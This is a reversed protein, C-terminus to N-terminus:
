RTFPRLRPMVHDRAAPVAPTPAPLFAQVRTGRGPASDLHFHGGVQEVRERMTALGYHGPPTAESSSPHFGSGDDTISVRLGDPGPCLRVTARSAGAHKRVNTLAEQVVRSLQLEHAPSLELAEPADVLLEAQVGSGRSWTALYHQLGPVFGQEDRSASRLGLISERVDRVSEQCLDALDDVESLAHTAGRLEPSSHLARLRLNIVALVQALSDHMERALRDREELVASHREAALARDQLAYIRRHVREISWFMAQGFAVVALAGIIAAATHLRSPWILPFAGIFALPLLLAVLRLRALRRVVDVDTPAPVIREEAGATSTQTTM